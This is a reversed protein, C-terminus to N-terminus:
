AAIDSTITDVACQPVHSATNPLESCQSRQLLPSTPTRTFQGRHSVSPAANTNRGNQPTHPYPRWAKAAASSPSSSSSSTTTTATTTTTDTHTGRSSTRMQRLMQSHQRAGDPVPLLGDQELTAPGFLENRAHGLPGIQQIQADRTQVRGPRWGVVAHTRHGDAENAGSVPTRISVHPAAGVM